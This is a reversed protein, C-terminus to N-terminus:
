KEFINGGKEEEKIFSRNKEDFLKIIIAHNLYFEQYLDYDLVYQLLENYGIPKLNSQIFNFINLLNDNVKIKAMTVNHGKM